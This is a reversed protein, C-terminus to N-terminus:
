AWRGRYGGGGGGQGETGPGPHRLGARKAHEYQLYMLGAAVSGGSLIAARHDKDLVAAVIIFLAAQGVGLHVWKMLTGARSAANIETTQPSSCAAAIIEYVIGAAVLFAVGHSGRLATDMDAM